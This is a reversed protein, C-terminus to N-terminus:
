TKEQQNVVSKAPRATLGPIMPLPGCSAHWVGARKETWYIVLPRKKGVPKGCIACKEDASIETTTTM